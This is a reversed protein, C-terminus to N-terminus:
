VCGSMYSATDASIGIDHLHEDSVVKPHKSLYALLSTGETTSSTEPEVDGNIDADLIDAIVM